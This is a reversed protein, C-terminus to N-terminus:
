WLGIIKRNKTFRQVNLADGLLGGFGVRYTYIPRFGPQLSVLGDIRFIKLINEIGVSAEAYKRSPNIFIANIGEVLTWNLKKFLPIKNTLLGNAHHEFHLESYFSSTNSFEYYPVNQFSKGYDKSVHSLNGYFHHYDQAYVLRSNLFGGVSFYYKIAGALKLNTDDTVNIKWKDYDM